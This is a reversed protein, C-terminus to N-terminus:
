FNQPIYRYLIRIEVFLLSLGFWYKGRKKKVMKDGKGEKFSFLTKEETESSNFEKWSYLNEKMSKHCLKNHWVYNIFVNQNEGELVSCKACQPKPSAKLNKKEKRNQCTFGAGVQGLLWAWCPVFFHKPVSLSPSSKAKIKNKATRLWSWGPGETLDLM